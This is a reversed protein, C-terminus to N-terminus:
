NIKMGRDGAGTRERKNTEGTTLERERVLVLSASAEREEGAAM